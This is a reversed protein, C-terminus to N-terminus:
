IFPYHKKWGKHPIGLESKIDNNDARINLNLGHGSVTQEGFWNSSLFWGDGEILQPVSRSCHNYTCGSEIIVLLLLVFLQMFTLLYFREVPGPLDPAKRGRVGRLVTRSLKGDYPELV